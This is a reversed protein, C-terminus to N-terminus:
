FWHTTACWNLEGAWLSVSNICNFKISRSNFLLYNCRESYSVFHAIFSLPFVFCFGFFFIFFHFFLLFHYNNNFLKRINRFWRFYFYFKIWLITGLRNHHNQSDSLIVDDDNSTLQFIFYFWKKKQAPPRSFANGVALNHSFMKNSILKSPVNTARRQISRQLRIPVSNSHM